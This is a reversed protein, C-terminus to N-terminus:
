IGEHDEYFFYFFYINNYTLRMDYMHNSTLVLSYLHCMFVKECVM